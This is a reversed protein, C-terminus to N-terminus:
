PAGEWRRGWRIANSGFRDRVADLHALLRDSAAAEPFLEGQGGARRETVAVAVRHVGVRRTWAAELLAGFAEYLDFDRDTPELRAQRSREM